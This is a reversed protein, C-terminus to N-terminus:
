ASLGPFLQRRKPGARKALSRTNAANSRSINRHKLHVEFLTRLTSHNAYLTYRIPLFPLFRGRHQTTEFGCKPILSKKLMVEFNDDWLGKWDLEITESTGKLNKGSASVTVQYKGPLLSTRGTNPRSLVDFWFLLKDDEKRPFHPKISSPEIVFGFDCHRYYGPPISIEYRKERWFSWFLRLSIFHTDSVFGGNEFRKIAELNIEVDETTSWGTNEVRLRFYHPKATIENTTPNRVSTARGDRKDYAFFHIILLPRYIFKQVIDNFLGLIGTFSAVGAGILSITIPTNRANTYHLPLLIVTAYGAVVFCAFIGIWIVHKFTRM